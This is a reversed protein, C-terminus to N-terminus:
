PQDIPMWGLRDVGRRAIAHSMFLRWILGTRFNEIALLTPGVDISVNDDSVRGQDLNFSDAFAYGDDDPDRWVLPTGDEHKLRRFARLAAISETPTFSISGAAAYPAVTGLRWEDRKSLNPKVSQELYAQNGDAAYGTCPSVGWQDNAFSAFMTAAEACRRRHTLLARRSNEFWDVRPAEVGFKAPEDAAFQGYDIWLHSFFYNFPIGNWSVVFPPSGKHSDVTRQLRYYDRPELTFGETPCAVALFYIIREEDSAISWTNKIPEGPGKMNANDAPRWGMHLYGDAPSVYARWNSEAAIEDVIRAVEGGFYVAAPMAGALLLSHDVTSAENRFPPYIDGTNLRVFHLYIGDHRNDDRQRLFRLM